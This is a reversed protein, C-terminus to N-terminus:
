LNEIKEKLFNYITQTISPIAKVIQEVVWLVMKNSCPVCLERIKSIVFADVIVKKETGTITTKIQRVIENKATEMILTFNEKNFIKSAEKKFSFIDLISM